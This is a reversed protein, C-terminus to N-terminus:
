RPRRPRRPRPRPRRVPRRPEATVCLEEITAETFGVRGDDGRAASLISNYMAAVARASAHGNAGPIVLKRVQEEAYSLVNGLSPPNKFTRATYSKPNFALNSVFSAPYKGRLVMDFTGFGNLAAIRGRDLETPPPLGCFFEDDCGIKACIEQKVVSPDPM